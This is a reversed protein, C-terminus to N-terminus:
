VPELARFLRGRVLLTRVSERVEGRKWKGSERASMSAISENVEAVGKALFVVACGDECCM